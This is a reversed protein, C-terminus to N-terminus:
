AAPAAGARPRYRFLALGLAAMAVFNAIGFVHDGFVDFTDPPLFQRTDPMAAMYAIMGITLALWGAAAMLVIGLERLRAGPSALVGLGLPVLVFLSTVALMEAKEQGSGVKIFAMTGETTLCLGGLLYLLISLVRRVM